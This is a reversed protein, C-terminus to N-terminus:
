SGRRRPSVWEGKKRTSLIRMAGCCSIPNGSVERGNAVQSIRTSVGRLAAVLTSARGPDIKMQEVTSM